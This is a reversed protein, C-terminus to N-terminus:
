GEAAEGDLQWPRPNSKTSAVKDARYISQHTLRMSRALKEICGTERQAMTLLREYRKLGDDDNLWEPEFAKILGDIVDAKVVHRCYNTLHPVDKLGFHEAPKSDIIRTWVAAEGESLTSPPGIRTIGRETSIVALSAASKRGRQKM